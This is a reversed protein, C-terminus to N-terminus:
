GRRIAPNELVTQVWTGSDVKFCLSHHCWFIGWYPKHFPRQFMFCHKKRKQFIKTHTTNAYFKEWMAQMQPEEVGLLDVKLADSLVQL